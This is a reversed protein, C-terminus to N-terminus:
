NVSYGRGSLCAGYARYYTDLQEQQSSALAQQQQAAQQQVQQQQQAAAQETKVNTRRQAVAGAAAGWAAGKGADDSVIEGVVAGAAAGKIAGGRRQQPAPAPQAAQQAVQAQQQSTNAALAAPDVGTNDVAWVHCEGEDKKQQEASQGQAPYVVPASLLPSFVLASVFLIIIKHLKKMACSRDFWITKVLQLPRYEM